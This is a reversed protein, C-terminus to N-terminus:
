GRRGRIGQWRGVRCRVSGSELNAQPLRERPDKVQDARPDLLEAARLHREPDTPFTFRFAAPATLAVSEGHPMSIDCFPARVEPVGNMLKKVGASISASARSAPKM